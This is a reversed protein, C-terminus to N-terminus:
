EQKLFKRLCIINLCLYEKIRNQYIEGLDNQYLNSLVVVGSIDVAM